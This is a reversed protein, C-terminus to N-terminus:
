AVWHATRSPMSLSLGTGSLCPTRCAALMSEDFRMVLVPLRDDVVDRTAHRTYSHAWHTKVEVPRAVASGTYSGSLPV